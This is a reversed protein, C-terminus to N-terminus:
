KNYNKIYNLIQLARRNTPENKLVMDIYFKSKIPNKYKFYLEALAINAKINEPNIKLAKLFYKKARVDNAKNSKLFLIGLMFNIKESAPYIELAEQGFKIADRRIKQKNKRVYFNYYEKFRVTTLYKLLRFKDNNDYLRGISKYAQLFERSAFNLVDKKFYIEGLELHASPNGLDLGIAKKYERIAKGYKNVEKFYNGRAVYIYANKSQNGSFIQVVKFGLRSLRFNGTGILLDGLSQSKFIYKIRLRSVILNNNDVVFLEDGAKLGERDYLRITVSTKEVLHGFLNNKKLDQNVSFSIIKGKLVASKGLFDHQTYFVKIYHNGNRNIMNSFVFSPLFLFSLIGTFIIKKM